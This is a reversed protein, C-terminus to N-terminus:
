SLYSGAVAPGKQCNVVRFQPEIQRLLGRAPFEGDPLDLPHGSATGAALHLATLDLRNVGISLSGNVFQLPVDSCPYGHVHRRFAACALQDQFKVILFLQIPKVFAEDFSSRGNYTKLLEGSLGGQHSLPTKGTISPSILFVRNSVDANPYEM